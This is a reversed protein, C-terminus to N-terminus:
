RANNAGYVAQERTFGEFELQDILESRSFSSINLYSKAMKVAQEKWDAGCRDVGHRAEAASFGEYELQDCLGSYSFASSNLYSKAMKVAQEKWDAGCHDVGYVADTHSFGEYELQDILGQRSFAMVNLYELAEKVSAVSVSGASSPRQAATAPENKLNARWNLNERVRETKRVCYFLSVDDSSKMDLKVFQCYVRSDDDGNDFMNMSISTGPVDFCFRDSSSGGGDEKLLSMWAEAWTDVTKTKGDEVYTCVIHYPITVKFCKRFYPDTFESGFEGITMGQLSIEIQYDVPYFDTGKKFDSSLDSEWTGLLYEAAEYGWLYEKADEYYPIEALTRIGAM